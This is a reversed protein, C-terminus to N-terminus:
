GAASDRSRDDAHVYAPDSDTILFCAPTGAGGLTVQVEVTQQHKTRLFYSVIHHHMLQTVPLFEIVRRTEPIFHSADHRVIRHPSFPQLVIARCQDPPQSLYKSSCFHYQVNRSFRLLSHATTSLILAQHLLQM